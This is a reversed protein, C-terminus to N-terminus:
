SAYYVNCTNGKTKYRGAETLHPYKGDIKYENDM